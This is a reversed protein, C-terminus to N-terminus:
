PEGCPLQWEYSEMTVGDVRLSSPYDSADVELKRGSGCALSTKEGEKFAAVPNCTTLPRNDEWYYFQAAEAYADVQTLLARTCDESVWTRGGPCGLYYVGTDIILMDGLYRYLHKTGDEEVAVRVTNTTPSLQTKLVTTSSGIKWVLTFIDKTDATISIDPQDASRYCKQAAFSGAPFALVFALMLWWRM